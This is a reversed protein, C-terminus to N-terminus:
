YRGHDGDEPRECVEILQARDAFAEFLAAETGTLWAQGGLSSLEDFLAARRRTDLHAAAEDLLILPVPGSGTDGLARANALILGILLAKQQGTSAQAAPAGSPRHV